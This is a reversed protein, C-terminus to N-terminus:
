AARDLIEKVAADARDDLTGIAATLREREDDAFPALGFRRRIGALARVLGEPRAYAGIWPGTSLAHAIGHLNREFEDRYTEGDDVHVFHHVHAAARMAQGALEFGEATAARVAAEGLRRVLAGDLCMEWLPHAFLTLKKATVSASRLAAITAREGEVFVPADHFWLDAELHHEIGRLVAHAADDAEGLLRRAVDVPAPRVRRDAMRWLDPLM